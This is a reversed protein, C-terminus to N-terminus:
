IHVIGHGKKEAVLVRIAASGSDLRGPNMRRIEQAEASLYEMLLATNIRIFMM